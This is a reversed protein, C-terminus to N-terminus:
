GASTVPSTFPPGSIGRPSIPYLFPKRNKWTGIVVVRDSDGGKASLSYAKGGGQSWPVHKPMARVQEKTALEICVTDAEQFYEHDYGEKPQITSM